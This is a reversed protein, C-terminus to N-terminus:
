KGFGDAWDAIKPIRYNQGKYILVSIYISYIAPGIYPILVLPLTVCCFMSIFFLPLSIVINVAIWVLFYIFSQKAHFNLIKDGEDAKILYIILPVFGSLFTFPALAACLHCVFSLMKTDGDLELENLSNSSSYSTSPTSDVTSSYENEESDAALQDDEKQQELTESEQVEEPTQQYGEVPPEQQPEVVEFDGSNSGADEQGPKFESFENDKNIDDSM